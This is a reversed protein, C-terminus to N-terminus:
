LGLVPVYRRARVYANTIDGMRSQFVLVVACWLAEWQCIPFCFPSFVTRGPVWPIM